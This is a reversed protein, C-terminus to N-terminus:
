LLRYYESAQETTELEHDKQEKRRGKKCYTGGMDVESIRNM